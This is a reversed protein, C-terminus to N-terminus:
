GAPPRAYRRGEEIIANLGTKDNLRYRDGDRNYERFVRAWCREWEAADAGVDATCAGVQTMSSEHLAGALSLALEWDSAVRYLPIDSTNVDLVSSLAVRNPGTWQGLTMHLPGYSAAAYFQATVAGLRLDLLRPGDPTQVFELQPEGTSPMLWGGTSCTALNTEFYMAITMGRPEFTLRPWNRRPQGPVACRAARLNGAPNGATAWTATTFEGDAAVSTSDVTVPVYSVRLKEGAELPRGLVVAGAGPDLDFEDPRLVGGPEEGKDLRWTQRAAREWLLTDAGAASTRVVFFLAKREDQPLGDRVRIPFVSGVDALRLVTQGDFAPGSFEATVGSPVETCDLLPTALAYRKFPLSAIWRESGNMVTRQGQKDRITGDGTM